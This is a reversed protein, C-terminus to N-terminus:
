FEFPLSKYEGLLFKKLVIADAITITGDKMCDACEIQRENLWVENKILKLLIVYDLSTVAGDGDIDGYCEPNVVYRDPIYQGPLESSNEIFLQDWYYKYETDPDYYINIGIHTYKENLINGWHNPSSKWLEMMEEASDSGAAINEAASAYPVGHEDLVSNFYKDNARSHSFSLSIEKARIGAAEIMVPVAYVPSVGAEVRAENVMFMMENILEECGPIPEADAESGLPVACTLAAAAAVAISAVRKLIKKLNFPM